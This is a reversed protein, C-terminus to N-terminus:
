SMLTNLRQVLKKQLRSRGLLSQLGMSKEIISYVRDLAIMRYSVEFHSILDITLAIVGRSFKM